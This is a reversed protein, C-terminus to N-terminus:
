STVFLWGPIISFQKHYECSVGFIINKQGFIGKKLSKLFIGLKKGKLQKKLDKNSISPKPLIFPKYIDLNDALKLNNEFQSFFQLGSKWYKKM